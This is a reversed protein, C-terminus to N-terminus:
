VTTNVLSGKGDGAGPASATSSEKSSSLNQNPNVAISELITNVMEKQLQVSKQFVFAGPSTAPQNHNINM